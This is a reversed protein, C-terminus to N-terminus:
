GTLPKWSSAQGLAARRPADSPRSNVVAGSGWRWRLCVGIALISALVIGVIFIALGGFQIDGTTCNIAPCTLAGCSLNCEPCQAGSSDRRWFVLLGAAFALGHSIAPAVGSMQHRSPLFRCCGSMRSVRESFVLTCAHM